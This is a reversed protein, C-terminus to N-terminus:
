DTQTDTWEDANYQLDFPASPMLQFFACSGGTAFHRPVEHFSIEEPLYIGYSIKLRERERILRSLFQRFIGRMISMAEVRLEPRDAHRMFMYVTKAYRYSPTNLLSAAGDSTDDVAIINVTTLANSVSDAFGQLGSVVGFEFGYDRCTRNITVLHRFYDSADWNNEKEM